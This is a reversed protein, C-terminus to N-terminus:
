LGLPQEASENKWGPGGPGGQGVAEGRQWEEGRGRIMKGEEVVCAHVVVIGMRDYRYLFWVGFEDYLLLGWVIRRRVEFCRVVNCRMADRLLAVVCQLLLVCSVM